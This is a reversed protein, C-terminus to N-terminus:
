VHSAPVHCSRSFQDVSLDDGDGNGNGDDDGDDDCAMSARKRWEKRGYRFYSSIWSMKQRLLLLLLRLM